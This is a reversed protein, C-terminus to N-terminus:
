YIIWQIRAAREKLYFAAALGTLFFGMMAFDVGLLFHRVSQSSLVFPQSCSMKTSLVSTDGAILLM